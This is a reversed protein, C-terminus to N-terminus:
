GHKGNRSRKFMDMMMKVYEKRNRARRNYTLILLFMWIFTCVVIAISIITVAVLWEDRNEFSM